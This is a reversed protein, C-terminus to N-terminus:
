EYARGSGRYCGRSREIWRKGGVKDTPPPPIVREVDVEAENLRHVRRGLCDYAYFRGGAENLLLLLTSNESNQGGQSPDGFISHPRRASERWRVEVLADSVGILILRHSKIGHDRLNAAGEEIWGKLMTASFLIVAPIFLLIAMKELELRRAALWLIAIVLSLLTGVLLAGVFSSSGTLSVPTIGLGDIAYAVGLYLLPGGPLLLLPSVRRKFKAEIARSVAIAYTVSLCCVMLAVFGVVFAVPTVRLLASIRDIGVQEPTVRFQAYFGDQVYYALAYCLASIFVAVSGIETLSMNLKRVEQIEVERKKHVRAISRLQRSLARAM